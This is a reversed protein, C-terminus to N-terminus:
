AAEFVSFCAVLVLGSEIKVVAAENQMGTHFDFRVSDEKSLKASAQQSGAAGMSWTVEAPGGMAIVFAVTTDKDIAMETLPPKKDESGPQSSGLLMAHGRCRERDFMLNLDRGTASKVVSSTQVDGPFAFPKFPLLASEPADGVTVTVGEGELGM